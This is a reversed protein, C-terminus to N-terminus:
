MSSHHINWVTERLISLLGDPILGQVSMRSKQATQPYKDKKEADSSCLIMYPPSCVLAESWNHIHSSMRVVGAAGKIFEEVLISEEVLIPSVWGLHAGDGSFNVFTESKKYIM